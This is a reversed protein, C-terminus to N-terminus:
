GEAGQLSNITVQATWKGRLRKLTRRTVLIDPYSERLARILDDDSIGDAEASVIQDRHAVLYEEDARAKKLRAYAASFNSAQADTYRVM